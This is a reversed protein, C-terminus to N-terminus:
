QTRRLSRNEAAMDEYTYIRCWWWCCVLFDIVCGRCSVIGLHTHSFVAINHHDSYLHKRSNKDYRVSDTLQVCGSLRLFSTTSYLLSLFRRITAATHTHATESLGTWVTRVCVCWQYAPHAMNMERTSKAREDQHTYLFNESGLSLHSLVCRPPTTLDVVVGVVGVERPHHSSSVYVCCCCHHLRIIDAKERAATRM